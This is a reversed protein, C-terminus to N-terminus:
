RIDLLVLYMNMWWFQELIDLKGNALDKWKLKQMSFGSRIESFMLLDCVPSSPHKLQLKRKAGAPVNALNAKVPLKFFQERPGRGSIRFEPQNRIHPCFLEGQLCERCRRAPHHPPPPPHPTTPPHCDCPKKPSACGKPNEPNVKTWCMSNGLSTSLSLCIYIRETLNM